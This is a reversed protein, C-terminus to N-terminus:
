RDREVSGHRGRDPRSRGVDHMDGEISAPVSSPATRERELAAHRERELAAHQERELRGIRALLETRVGAVNHPPLEPLYRRLEALEAGIASSSRPPLPM